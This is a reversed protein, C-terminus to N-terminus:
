KRGRRGSKAPRSSGKRDRTVSRRGSRKKTPTVKRRQFSSKTARSPAKNRRMARSPAKRPAVRRRPAVRKRRPAVRKTRRIRAPRKTARRTPSTRRFSPRSTPARNFSPRKKHTKRTPGFHKVGRAGSTGPRRYRPNTAPVPRMHPQSHRVRRIDMGRRPQRVRLRGTRPQIRTTPRKGVQSKGPVSYDQRFGMAPRRRRKSFGRREGRSTAVPRAKVKGHHKATGYRVKRTRRHKHTYKHGYQHHYGAYHSRRHHRGWRWSGSNWHGHSWIGSNWHGPV